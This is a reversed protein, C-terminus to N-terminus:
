GRRVLGSARAVRGRSSCRLWSARPRRSPPQRHGAPAPLSGGGAGWGARGAGEPLATPLLAPTGAPGLGAVRGRAGAHASGAEVAGAALLTLAALAAQGAAPRPSPSIGPGQAPNGARAAARERCPARRPAEPGTTLLRALTEVPPGAIGDGSGAVAGRAEQPGVAAETLPRTRAPPERGHGRDALLVGRVARGEGAQQGRAPGPRPAGCEPQTSRGQETGDALPPRAASLLVEGQTMHPSEVRRPHQGPQCPRPLPGLSDRSSCPLGPGWCLRRPAPSCAAEAGPALCRPSRGDRGTGDQRTGVHCLSHTWGPVGVRGNGGPLRDVPGSQGWSHGRTCTHAPPLRHGQFRCTCRDGPSSQHGSHARHTGALRGGQAVPHLLPTRPPTCGCRGGQRGVRGAGLRGAPYSTLRAGTPLGGLM